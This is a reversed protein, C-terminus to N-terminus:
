ILRFPQFDAEFRGEQVDFHKRLKKIYLDSEKSAAEDILKDKLPKAIESFPIPGETSKEKLYFIRFLPTTDSRSKQPIPESFSGPNLNLLKLKYAESLEKEQHHMEDSLTVKLGTNQPYLAKVKEPLDQLTVKEETLMKHAHFSAEAALDKDQDRISIVVYTWTAPRINNKAFVEYADHVVQPTIQKIAKAQGRVYLMQKLLIDSSVIKWAEDYPLGIKDLNSIINPGFLTEMEQRVDGNGIPFKIEEADAMILEKDILDELVRKWSVQYFQYRAETLSTYEPYSKYFLLDMKKMVDIVSIAKGNVKALIRNDVSIQKNEDSTNLGVANVVTFLSLLAVFFTLFLAKM